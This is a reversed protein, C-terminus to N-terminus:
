PPWGRTRKVVQVVATALYAAVESGLVQGEILNGAVAAAAAAM